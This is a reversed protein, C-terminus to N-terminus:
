HATCKCISKLCGAVGSWHLCMGKYINMQIKVKQAHEALVAVVKRQWSLSTPLALRENGILRCDFGIWHHWSTFGNLNALDRNGLNPFPIECKREGLATKLWVHSIGLYILTDNVSIHTVTSITPTGPPARLYVAEIRYGTHIHTHPHPLLSIICELLCTRLLYSRFVTILWARSDQRRRSDGLLM